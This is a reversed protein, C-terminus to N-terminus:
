WDSLRKNPPVTEKPKKKTNPSAQEYREELLMTRTPDSLMITIRRCLERYCHEDESDIHLQKQKSEELRQKASCLDKCWSYTDEGPLNNLLALTESHM